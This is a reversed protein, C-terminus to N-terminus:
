EEEKTAKRVRIRLQGKRKFLHQAKRYKDNLRLMSQEQQQFTQYLSRNLALKCHALSMPPKNQRKFKSLTREFFPSYLSTSEGRALM